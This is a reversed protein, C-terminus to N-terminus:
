AVSFDILKRREPRMFALVIDDSPVGANLLSKTIGSEIGDWEIYIKQDVIRVHIIVSHVRRSGYWGVNLLMFNDTEAEHINIVDCNDSSPKFQAHLDFIDKLIQRYKTLKDM